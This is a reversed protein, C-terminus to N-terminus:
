FPIDDDDENSAPASAPPTTVPSGSPQSDPYTFEKVENFKMVEGPNGNRKPKDVIVVKCTGSRGQLWSPDVFSPINKPPPGHFISKVFTDIKWKANETFVLWTNVNVTEEPHGIQLSLPLMDNGKGSTEWAFVEAVVFPYEGPELLTFSKEVPEEYTYSDRLSM